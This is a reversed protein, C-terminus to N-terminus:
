GFYTGRIPLNRDQTGVIGDLVVELDPRVSPSNSIAIVQTEGKPNILFLGPEAYLGDLEYDPIHPTLYLSLSQCQEVTLGHAVPLTWDNEDITRQVLAEPDTAALLIEVGRDTYTPALKHLRKIYDKCRPCHHGRYVILMVWSGIRNTLKVTEGSMLNFSIDPFTDAPKLVTM